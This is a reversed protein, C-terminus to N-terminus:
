KPKLLVNLIERLKQSLGHQLVKLHLPKRKRWMFCIRSSVPEISSKHKARRKAKHEIKQSGGESSRNNKMYYKHFCRKHYKARKKLWYFNLLNLPTPAKYWMYLLRSLSKLGDPSYVLERLTGVFSGFDRKICWKSNVWFEPHPINLKGCFIQSIVFILHRFLISLGQM